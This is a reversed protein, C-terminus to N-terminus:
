NNQGDRRSKEKKRKKRKKTKKEKERKLTVHPALRLHNEARVVVRADIALDVVHRLPRLAVYPGIM